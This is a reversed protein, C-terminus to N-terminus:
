PSVSIVSEALPVSQYEAPDAVEFTSGTQTVRFPTAVRIWSPQLPLIL